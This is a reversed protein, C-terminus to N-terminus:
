HSLGHRRTWQQCTQRWARIGSLTELRWYFDRGRRLAKGPVHLQGNIRNTHFLVAARSARRQCFEVLTGRLWLRIQDVFDQVPYVRLTGLLSQRHEVPFLGLRTHRLHASCLSVLGFALPGGVTLFLGLFDQIAELGGLGSQPSKGGCPDLHTVVFIRLLLAVCLVRAASVAGALLRLLARHLHDATPIALGQPPSRRRPLPRPRRRVARQGSLPRARPSLGCRPHAGCRGPM